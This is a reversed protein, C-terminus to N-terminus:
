DFLSEQPGPENPYCVNLFTDRDQIAEAFLDHRDLAVALACSHAQCNLSKAPNFEIDTFGTYDRLQQLLNPGDTLAKIYVWDYFATRPVNPWETNPTSFRLVPQDTGVRPDTKAKRPGVDYLKHYPGGSEFVKSGQFASEVPIPHKAFGEVLLEFASLQRGLGTPSKSSVELYEGTVLSGRAAKHLAAISKQKQSKAFGPFWEFEVETRIVLGTRPDGPQFIPRKAM